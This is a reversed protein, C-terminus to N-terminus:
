EIGSKLPVFHVAEHMSRRLEDGHRDVVLLVQGSGARGECRRWWGAASPWSSSGPRRAPRQRRGRRHHQRLACEARHGLRGDGYVLRMHGARMRAWTPARRTTCRSAPARDLDRAAGAAGAAGDPLRLRHRDRARPRAHRQARARSGEHLLSSCARWWRPSPSRRGWASRCAPTKTPRRPWRATSSCTARCRGCRRAAGGRPLAGRRAPAAGHAARVAASDLGLGSPRHAARRRAGGAAAAGAAAAHTKRQAAAASAGHAGARRFARAARRPKPEDACGRSARGHEHLRGAACRRM